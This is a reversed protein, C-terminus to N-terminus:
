SAQTTSRSIFATLRTIRASHYAAMKQAYEAASEAALLERRAEELERKALLEASPRKFHELINM